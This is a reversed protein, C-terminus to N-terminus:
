SMAESVPKEISGGFLEEFQEPRMHEQGDVRAENLIRRISPSWHTRLVRQGDRAYEYFIVGALQKVMRHEEKEPSEFVHWMGGGSIGGWHKPHEFVEEGQRGREDDWFLHNWDNGQVIYDSYLWGERQEMGDPIAECIWMTMARGGAEAQKEHNWGVAYALSGTGFEPAPREGNRIMEAWLLAQLEGQEMNYFVAGSGKQEEISRAVEVAIPIWALDPGELKENDRGWATITGKPVHLRLLGLPGHGGAFVAPRMLLAIEEPDMGEHGQRLGKVVHGATLIGFSSTSAVKTLIGSGKLWGARAEGGEQPIRALVVTHAVISPVVETNIKELAAHRDM